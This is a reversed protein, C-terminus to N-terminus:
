NVWRMGHKEPSSARLPLTGGQLAVLPLMWVMRAARKVCEDFNFGSDCKCGSLAMDRWMTEGFGNSVTKAFEKRVKPSSTKFARDTIIRICRKAPVPDGMGALVHPGPFISFLIVGSLLVPFFPPYFSPHSVL